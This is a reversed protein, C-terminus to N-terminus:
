MFFRTEKIKNALAFPLIENWFVLTLDRHSISKETTLSHVKSSPSSTVKGSVGEEERVM